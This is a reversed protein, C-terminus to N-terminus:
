RDVHSGVGVNLHRGTTDSVHLTEVGTLDAQCGVVDDRVCRNTVLQHLLDLLRPCLELCVPLVLTQPHEVLTLEIPQDSVERGGLSLHGDTTRRIGLTQGDLRGDHHIGIGVLRQHLLLDEARNQRNDGSFRQISCNIEDIGPRFRQRGVCEGFGLVGSVPVSGLHRCTAHHDVVQEVVSDDRLQRETADTGATHTGVM